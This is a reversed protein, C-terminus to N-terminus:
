PGSNVEVCFKKYFVGWFETPTGEFDKILAPGAEPHLDWATVNFDRDRIYDLLEPVWEAYPSRQPGEPNGTIDGYHGCEGIIIPFKAALSPPIYEDYPAPKWPYIHCDYIIGNGDRDSLSHGECGRMDYAWDIGGVIVINKAGTNRVTDILAQMGVMEFKEKKNYGGSRWEEWTEPYPENYLGFLVLPHNAYRRAANDWFTVSNNDPMCHQNIYRGWKGKNSWHLDFWIYKGREAAAEIIEDILLRYNCGDPDKKQDYAFGYWRDQSLCLRVVNAKWEDFAMVVREKIREGTADWELGACNVGVLRVREGNANLIVNGRTKLTKNRLTECTIDIM